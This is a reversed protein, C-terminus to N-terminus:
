SYLTAGHVELGLLEEDTYNIEEGDQHRTRQHGIEALVPRRMCHEALLTERQLTGLGPQDEEEGTIQKAVEGEQDAGLQVVPEVVREPLERVPPLYPAQRFAIQQRPAPQPPGGLRLPQEAGSGICGYHLRLPDLRPCQVREGGAPRDVRELPGLGPEGPVMGGPSTETWRKSASEFNKRLRTTTSATSAAIKAKRRSGIAVSTQV